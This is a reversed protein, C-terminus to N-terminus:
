VPKCFRAEQIFHWPALDSLQAAKPGIRKALWNVDDPEAVRFAYLSTMSATIDRLWTPRRTAAWVKVGRHRGANVLHLGVEPHRGKGFIKHVEDWVLTLNGVAWAAQNFYEVQDIINKGMEPRFVLRFTKCAVLEVLELPDYVVQAGFGPAGWGTEYNPDFVMVRPAKGIHKRMAYSKGMTGAGVYLRQDIM